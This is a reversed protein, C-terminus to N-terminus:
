ATPLDISANTERATQILLEAIERTSEPKRFRYQSQAIQLLKEGNNALLESVMDNLRNLNTCYLGLKHKVVFQPNKAEQGGLAGTIIVPKCLNIAEMLVNPSARTILLDAEMMRAKIETIFGYLTVRKGIYPSFANEMLQILAKNHGAIISLHIKDNNLLTKAIKLVQTSGQSGSILLISVVEKAAHCHPEPLSRDCFTDRVPFGTLFLQKHAMGVRLMKQQAENSPCIIYTARKDAWLSTVNDLDAILSIFPIDLHSQDLIDLVSGVFLNHVSVIVDPHFSDIQKLLSKKISRAVFWNVVPKFPNSLQYFLGWLAPFKVAFSDYNHSSSRLVWSGLGFGDIVTFQSDPSLLLLQKSLAETISKHGNGTYESSLFLIRNM